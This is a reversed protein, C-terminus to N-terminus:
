FHFNVLSTAIDNRTLLREPRSVYLDVEKDIGTIDIPKPSETGFEAAVVISCKNNDSCNVQVCVATADRRLLQNEDDVYREWPTTSEWEESVLIDGKAIVYGWYKEERAENLPHPWWRLDTLDTPEEATAFIWKMYGPIYDYNTLGEPRDEKFNKIENIHKELQINQASAPMFTDIPQVQSEDPIDFSVTQDQLEPRIPAFFRIDQNFEGTEDTKFQKYQTGDIYINNNQDFFALMKGEEIELLVPLDSFKDPNDDDGEHIPCCYPIGRCAAEAIKTLAEQFEKKSQTTKLAAMIGLQMTYGLNRSADDSLPNACFSLIKCLMEHMVNGEEANQKLLHCM